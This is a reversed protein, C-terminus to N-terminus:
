GKLLSDLHQLTTHHLSKVTSHLCNEKVYVTIGYALSLGVNIVTEIASVNMGNHSSGTDIQLFMDLQSYFKKTIDVM